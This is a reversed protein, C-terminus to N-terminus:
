TSTHIYLIKQREMMHLLDFPTLLLRNLINICLDQTSIKRYRQQKQWEQVKGWIKFCKREGGDRHTGHFHHPIPSSKQCTALALVHWMTDGTRRVYLNTIYIDLETLEIWVDMNKLIQSKHNWFKLIWM